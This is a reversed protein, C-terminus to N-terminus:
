KERKAVPIRHVPMQIPMVDGRVQFCVPPELRGIGKFNESYERLVVDKNLQGAPPLQRSGPIMIPQSPVPLPKCTSTTLNHLSEVHDCMPSKNMSSRQSRDLKLSRFSPLEADGDYSQEVASTCFVDADVNIQILGLSESESGSLLAPKRWMDRDSLVQFTIISYQNGRDCILQVQGVPRIPDSAGYPYLLYPSREMNPPPDVQRLMSASMTNCTAATDIQFPLMDYKQGTSSLCLKTFYRKGTSKDNKGVHHVQQLDVSYCQQSNFGDDTSQHDSQLQHVQEAQQKGPKDPQRPHPNRSNFQGRSRGRFGSQQRQQTQRQYQPNKAELCVRAFHDNGGCRLCAKGKAPCNSWTHPGQQDGCWHCTGPERKLNMNKHSTWNVQENISPKSNDIILQNASKAAEFVKAESVVDIMTKKNGDARLNTKLLEVRTSDDQLGFIFKDRALEDSM